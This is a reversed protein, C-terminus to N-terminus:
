DKPSSDDKSLKEVKKELDSLREPVACLTKLKLFFAGKKEMQGLTKLMFGAMEDLFRNPIPVIFM